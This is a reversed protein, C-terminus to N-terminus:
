SRFITQLIDNRLNVPSDGVVDTFSVEISPTRHLEGGKKLMRRITKYYREHKKRFKPDVDPINSSMQKLRQKHEASGQTNWDGTTKAFWYSKWRDSLNRELIVFRVNPFLNKWLGMHQELTLHFYFQKFNVVCQDRRRLITSEPCSSTLYREDGKKSGSSEVSGFEATKKDRKIQERCKRQAVRLVFDSL